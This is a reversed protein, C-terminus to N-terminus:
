HANKARENYILQGYLHLNKELSDIRNWQNTYRSKHRYWVTKIVKAKYYLKFGPLIIGRAKSM